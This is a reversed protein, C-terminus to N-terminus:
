EELESKIEAIQDRVSGLRAVMEDGVIGAKSLAIGYVRAAVGHLNAVEAVLRDSVHQKSRTKPWSKFTKDDEPSPVYNVVRVGVEEDVDVRFSCQRILKRAQDHWREAAAEKVDWTFDGHCPHEEDRAAEILDQPDVIGRHELARISAEKESWKSM